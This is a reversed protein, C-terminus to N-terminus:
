KQSIHTSLALIQTFSLPLDNEQSLGNWLNSNPPVNTEHAVKKIIMGLFIVFDMEFARFMQFM